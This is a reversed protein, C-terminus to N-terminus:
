SASRGSISANIGSLPSYPAQDPGSFGELSHRKWRSMMRARGSTPAITWAVRGIARRQRHQAPRDEGGMVHDRQEAARDDLAHFVRGVAGLFQRVQRDGAEALAVAHQEAVVARDDGARGELAGHVSRHLQLRQRAHVIEGDRDAPRRDQRVLLDSADDLAELGVAAPDVRLLRTGGILFRARALAFAAAVLRPPLFFAVRLFVLLVTARFHRGFPRFPLAGSVRGRAGDAIARRGLRRDGGAGQGRDGAPRDPLRAQRHTEEALGAARMQSVFRARKTASGILGVYAFRDQRLAEAVVALDLPHSHTMVVVLAGDPAGALEGQPEGAHVLTANLPAREPFADARSDIWRVAFPLRRWRWRSRAGSM